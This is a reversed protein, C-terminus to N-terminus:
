DEDSTAGSEIDLLAEVEKLFKRVYVAALHDGKPNTCVTAIRGESDSCARFTYARYHVGDDTIHVEWGCKRLCKVAYDLDALDCSKPGSRLRELADDRRKRRARQEEADAGEAM